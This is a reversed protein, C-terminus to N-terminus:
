GQNESTQRQKKIKNKKSKKKDTKKIKSDKTLKRVDKEKTKTPKNIKEIRKRKYNESKHSRKMYIFNLNKDFESGELTSYSFVNEKNKDKIDTLRTSILEFRFNVRDKFNTIKIHRFAMPYTVLSPTTVYVINGIRDIKTAHYHGALVIIPNKHKILIENFENENLIKHDNVVFPQVPPFHLAIVVVKDKHEELEQKLFELQEKSIEGNSTEYDKITGDLIIIRYDTKPSFAYYTKDFIYNPNNEKVISLVDEKTMQNRLYFDHNGFANLHPYELKTLVKYYEEYNEITASDVMDGTFLVFDLGKINNIQRIADKLLLSSSGVAKFTTDPKATEIHTDSIQVLDLTMNRFSFAYTSQILAFFAFISLIINKLNLIKNKM